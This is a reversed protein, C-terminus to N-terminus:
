FIVLYVPNFFARITTISDDQEAKKILRTWRTMGYDHESHKGYDHESM